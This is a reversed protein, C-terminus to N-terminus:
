QGFIAIRGNGGNIEWSDPEVTQKILDVLSDGNRQQRGGFGGGGGRQFLAIRGAGGNQEWANPRIVRPIMEALNENEGAQVGFRNMFGQQSLITRAAPIASLTPPAQPQQHNIAEVEAVPPTGVVLMLAVFTSSM